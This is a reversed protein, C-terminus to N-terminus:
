VYWMRSEFNQDPVNLHLYGSAPIRQIERDLHKITVSFNLDDDPKLMLQSFPFATELISNVAFRIRSEGEESEKFTKEQRSVVNKCFLILEDPNDALRIECSIKNERGNVINLNILYNEETLFKREIDIRLFFNELNFGYYLEKVPYEARHMAGGLQTGDFFVAGRWEYYDSTNGNIEPNIFATIERDYHLNKESQIIPHHLYEPIELKLCRYVTMLHQRFLKDFDADNESSHDDGYWWCWDSGEAIYIHEWAKNINYKLEQDADIEGKHHQEFLVLERRARGLYDWALNDEQHGIWIRFNRNIWSGPYIKEIKPVPEHRHSLYDSITVAEFEPNDNLRAYLEQLFLAGDKPYHEWANEGDLIIAVASEGIRSGMATKIKKLRSIFDDAAQEENWHSYVFGILDSLLHDRFIVEVGPGGAESVQYARYWDAPDKVVEDRNREVERGISNALIGEDTAIWKIGAREFFPIIEQCVSGESPWMGAPKRGFYYEHQKVARNIQASVDEPHSFRLNPLPDHPQSIAALNTDYLLPLIPHYYPTTSLEIQGREQRERYAPIIRGLIKQQINLLSAKNTESFNRGRRILNPLFDYQEHFIPDIWILNYWIQLDLFDQNSFYRQIENLSDPTPHFGRMKLLEWYRPFPKVMNDWHAHFFSDLLFVREDVTLSDAKKITLELNKDTLSGDVYGQLQDLLSPVLNFNQRVNPFDDLITVMDLYDKVGHLRVWPMMSIGSETDRYDPQHMHWLFIVKLPDQSM